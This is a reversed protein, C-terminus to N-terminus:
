SPPRTEREDSPMAGKRTLFTLEAVASKDLEGLGLEVLREYQRVTAAALPALLDVERALACAIRADKAAHAASFYVEHDRQQMDAGDTHLVRSDAGTRAFIERLMTLDLGLAEGLGLGEALGATNINMVMNVLAKVKAASGAPGIYRVEASIAALLPRAREFAERRGGVMLYLSGERAQIISGAMCAEISQAGRAEARREIEVHVSPTVTACNVFLKGRAHALLSSSSEAFIRNMAEDDTVVTLIIDAEASVERLERAHLAGTEKATLGAAEARTDYVAAIAYGRDRLRLGLDAGMRGVGVIGIKASDKM